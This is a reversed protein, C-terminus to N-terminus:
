IKQRQQKSRKTVVILRNWGFGKAFFSWIDLLGEDPLKDRLWEEDVIDM